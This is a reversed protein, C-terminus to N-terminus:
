VRLGLGRRWHLFSVRGLSPVVLVLETGPLLLALLGGRRLIPRRLRRMLLRSLLLVPRFLSAL